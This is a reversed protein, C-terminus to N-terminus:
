DDKQFDEAVLRKRYKEWADIYRIFLDQLKLQEVAKQKKDLWKEREAQSEAKKWKKDAKKFDEFAGDADFFNVLFKDLLKNVRLPNTLNQKKLEPLIKEAVKSIQGATAVTNLLEATVALQIPLTRDYWGRARNEPPLILGQKTWTPITNIKPLKFDRDDDLIKKALERADRLKIQDTDTKTVM